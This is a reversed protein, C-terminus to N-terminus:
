ILLINILIAFIYLICIPHTTPVKLLIEAMYPHDTNDTSSLCDCLFWHCSALWQIDCQQISNAKCSAIQHSRLWSSLRSWCQSCLDIYEFHFVIMTVFRGVNHNIPLFFFFTQLIFIFYYIVVCFELINFHCQFFYTHKMKVCSTQM